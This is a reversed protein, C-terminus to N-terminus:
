RAFDLLKTWNEKGSCGRNFQEQTKKAALMIDGSSGSRGDRFIQSYRPM